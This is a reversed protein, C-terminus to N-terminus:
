LTPDSKKLYMTECSVVGELHNKNTNEPEYNLIYWCKITRQWKGSYLGKDITKKLEYDSEELYKIVSLIQVIISYILYLKSSRQWKGYNLGKEITKELEYDFEVLGELVSLIQVHEHLGAESSFEPGNEPWVWTGVRIPIILTLKKGM